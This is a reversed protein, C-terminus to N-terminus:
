KAQRTLRRVIAITVQVVAVFGLGLVFKAWPGPLRDAAPRTGLALVSAWAVGGLVIVVVAAAPIRTRTPNSGDARPEPVAGVRETLIPKHSARPEDGYDEREQDM